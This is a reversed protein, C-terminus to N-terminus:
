RVDRREEMKKNEGNNKLTLRIQEMILKVISETDIGQRRHLDDRAGYCYLLADEVALRRLPISLGFDVLLEAIISGLGGNITHEELAFLREAEKITNFIGDKNLPKLRYLDIVKVPFSRKSLEKAVELARHVMIGTSIVCLKQGEHLVSLGSSFDDKQNYLVPLKERDCRIYIPGNSYLSIDVLGAAMNSDSPVYIQINPLTRLIAIDETAHHTPGDTAYSYGAGVGLITVPLNMACLDLKIQEFCRLTIFSAISYVYVKKGGLALGAAVSIINQESVGANIFQTPLDKRFQDLSTAGQDNTIFIIDQDRKAYSYLRSIFADRMQLNSERVKMGYYSRKQENSIRKM